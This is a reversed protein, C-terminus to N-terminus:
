RDKLARINREGRYEYGWFLLTLSQLAFQFDGPVLIAILMTILM